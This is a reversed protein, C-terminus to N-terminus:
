FFLKWEVKQILLTFNPNSYKMGPQTDAHTQNGVSGEGGSGTEGRWDNHGREEVRKQSALLLPLFLIMLTLLKTLFWWSSM